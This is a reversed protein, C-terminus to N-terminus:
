SWVPDSAPPLVATLDGQYTVLLESRARTVGVYVLRSERALAESEGLSSVVEPEPVSANSAFPLIVADFELGKGSHYTGAFVGPDDDWAHLDDHLVTVDNLGRTARLALDRTRALVAVRATRGLAQARTRVIEIENATSSARVLTPRAGAALPATPRVLDASDQFHPMESMRIALEAIEKTNRYNEAFVEVTPAVLGFDRWSTRRGYIQQAYDGFLTLSGDPPIAEALSRVAAPSLDQSEDVVIHKYMREDSDSRFEQLAANALSHWDYAYGAGTLGATYAVLLDWLQDKEDGSLNTDGWSRPLAGYEARTEVARGQMWALEEDLRGIPSTLLSGGAHTHQRQAVIARSLVERRVDGPAISGFQMQGRSALYGRAFQAYTEVRLNGLDRALHNLYTRLSKNYTLLLTPGYNITAPDALAAARHVAMTTKGSGATGLIVVHGRPQMHVVDFQRGVPMPLTM